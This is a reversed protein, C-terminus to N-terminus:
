GNKKVGKLHLSQLVKEMSQDKKILISRLEKVARAEKKTGQVLHQLTM